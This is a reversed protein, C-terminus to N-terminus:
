FNEVDGSYEMRFLYAFKTILFDVAITGPAM